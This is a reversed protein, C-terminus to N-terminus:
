VEAQLGSWSVGNFGNYGRRDWRRAERIPSPRSEFMRRMREQTKFEKQIRRIRRNRRDKVHADSAYPSLGWDNESPASMHDVVQPWKVADPGWLVGIMMDFTDRDMANLSAGSRGVARKAENASPYVVITQREKWAVINFLRVSVTEQKTM